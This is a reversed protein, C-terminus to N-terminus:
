YNKWKSRGTTYDGHWLQHQEKGWVAILAYGITYWRLVDTARQLGQLKKAYTNTRWPRSLHRFRNRCRRGQRYASCRRRISSNLAENHNAGVQTKSRRATYPHEPKLWKVCKRGQCGKIKIAVELGFPVLILLRLVGVVKVGYPNERRQSWRPPVPNQSM